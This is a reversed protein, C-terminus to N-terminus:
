YGTFVTSDGFTTQGDLYLETTWWGTAGYELELWSALSRNGAKPVGLVPNFSVELSRPEEMHHDYTIFYPSEQAGVPHSVLLGPLMLRAITGACTPIRARAAALPVVLSRMLVCRVFM